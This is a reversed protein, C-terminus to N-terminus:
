SMKRSEDMYRVAESINAAKGAELIGILEVVTEKKMHEKNIFSAYEANLKNAIERQKGEASKLKESTEDRLKLLTEREATSKGRVENEIEGQTISDFEDLAAEKAKLAEAHVEEAEKIKNDYEALNYAEDSGDNKISMRIEAIKKRNRKIDKNYKRVKQIVDWKYMRLRNNVVLYGPIFLVAASSYLGALVLTHEFPILMYIGYPLICFLMLFIVAQIIREMIGEAAFLTLYLKTRHIVTMKNQKLLAKRESKFIKIQEALEATENVIREKKCKEFNKEREAHARKLNDEAKNINKDNASVIEGRRKKSISEINEQEHTTIMELDRLVARFQSQLLEVDRVTDQQEDLIDLLNRLKEIDKNFFANGEM